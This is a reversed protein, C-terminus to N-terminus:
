GSVKQSVWAEAFDDLLYRTRRSTKICDKGRMLNRVTANRCGCFRALESISFMVQKHPKMGKERCEEEHARQISRAVETKTM